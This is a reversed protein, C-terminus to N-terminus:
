AINVLVDIGGFQAVCQAVASRCASPDTVDMSACAGGTIDAFVTALKGADRAVGFVTAGRGSLLRATEAGLGSSAGTVFAVRGEFTAM